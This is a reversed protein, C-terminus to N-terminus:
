RIFFWYSLLVLGEFFDFVLCLCGIDGGFGVMDWWVFVSCGWFGVM